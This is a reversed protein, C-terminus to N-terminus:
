VVSKRDRMPLLLPRIADLAEVQELARMGRAALALNISRGGSAAAGPAPGRDYVTVALGRRALVLALLHGALGGGLIAIPETM